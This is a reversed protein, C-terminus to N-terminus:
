SQSKTKNNNHTKTHRFSMIQELIKCDRKSKHRNYLTYLYLGLMKLEEKMRKLVAFCVNRKNWTRCKKYFFMYIYLMYAIPRKFMSLIMCYLEHLFVKTIMEPILKTNSLNVSYNVANPSPKKRNFCDVIDQSDTLFAVYGRYFYFSTVTRCRGNFSTQKAM